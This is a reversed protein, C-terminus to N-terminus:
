WAQEGACRAVSSTVVSSSCDTVHSPEGTLAHVGSSRLNSNLWTDGVFRGLPDESWPTEHRQRCNLLGVGFGTTVAPLSEAHTLSRDTM